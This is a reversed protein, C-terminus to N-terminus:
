AASIPSEPPGVLPMTEMLAARQVDEPRTQAYHRLAVQISHGLWRCYNHIPTGQQILETSRTSRLNQFPREWDTLGAAEIIRGLQVGIVSSDSYPLVIRGTADPREARLGDLAARIEPLLPIERGRPGSGHRGKSGRVYLVQQKLRVDEWEARLIGSPRLGGFRVLAFIVRWEATPCASWVRRSAAATMFREREENRREALDRLPRCPNETLIGQEVAAIFFHTAKRCDTRVTNPALKAVQSLSPDNEVLPPHVVVVPPRM